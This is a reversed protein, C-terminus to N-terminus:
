GLNTCTPNLLSFFFSFLSLSFNAVLPKPYNSCGVQRRGQSRTSWVVCAPDSDSRTKHFGDTAPGVHTMSVHDHCPAVSAEGGQVTHGEKGPMGTPERSEGEDGYWVGRERKKEQLCTTRMGGQRTFRTGEKERKGWELRVPLAGHRHEGCRTVRQHNGEV